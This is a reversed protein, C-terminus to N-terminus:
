AACLAEGGQMSLHIYRDRMEQAFEGHEYTDFTRVIDDLDFDSLVAPIELEIGNQEAHYRLGMVIEHLEM